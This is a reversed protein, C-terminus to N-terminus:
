FNNLFEIESKLFAIRKKKYTDLVNQLKSITEVDKIERGKEIFSLTAQHIGLLQSFENQSLGIINRFQKIKETNWDMKFNARLLNDSKRLDCNTTNEM